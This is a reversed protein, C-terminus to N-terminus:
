GMASASRGSIGPSFPLQSRGVTELVVKEGGGLLSDTMVLSHRGYVLLGLPITTAGGSVGASGAYIGRGSQASSGASIRKGSGGV